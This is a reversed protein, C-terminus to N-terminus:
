RGLARRLYGQFSFDYGLPIVSWGGRPEDGNAIAASERQVGRVIRETGNPDEQFAKELLILLDQPVAWDEGDRYEPRYRSPRSRAIRELRRASQRCVRLYAAPYLGEM